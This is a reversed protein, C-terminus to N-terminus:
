VFEGYCLNLFRLDLLLSKIALTVWISLDLDSLRLDAIWDRFSRPGADFSFLTAFRRSRTENSSSIRPMTYSGVIKPRLRNPVVLNPATLALIAYAYEPEIESTNVGADEVLWPSCSIEYEPEIM